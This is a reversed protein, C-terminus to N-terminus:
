KHLRNLFMLQCPSHTQQYKLYHQFLRDSLERVNFKEASNKANNLTSDYMVASPDLLLITKVSERLLICDVASIYGFIMENLSALM